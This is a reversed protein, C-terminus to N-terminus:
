APLLAVIGDAGVPKMIHDDFGAAATRERDESRGYGTLAILRVGPGLVERLRPAVELGDLGPLGLDVVVVEPRTATALAIGEIGDAAVMVQHGQAELGIQLVERADADDEIVLIRTM